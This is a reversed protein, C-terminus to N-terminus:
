ESILAEAQEILTAQDEDTLYLAYQNHWKGDKGKTQPVSVFKGNKGNVVRLNYLGLGNGNLSFALVDESLVRVNQVKMDTIDFYTNQIEKKEKTKYAM